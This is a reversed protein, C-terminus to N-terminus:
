IGKTFMTNLINGHNDHIGKFARFIFPCGKSLHELSYYGQIPSTQNLWTPDQGRALLSNKGTWDPRFKCWFVIFNMNNNMSFESSHLIFLRTFM